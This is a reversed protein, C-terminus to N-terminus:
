RKHRRPVFPLKVVEAGIRRQHVEVEWRTGIKGWELLIRALGIGVGLTPSLSGSTVRGIKQHDKWIFYGDRPIEKGLMRFGVLKHLIGRKQQDGLAQKGLFDGKEFAVTWHLGVELPSLTEDLDHGYLINGAELRLTNRAGLGVPVLGQSRGESLLKDWLPIVGENSAFIEFGDEGTYGSRSIWVKENLFSEEQFAYYSLPKLRFKLIKELLSEALPGQIALCNVTDSHNIIEVSTKATYKKLHNMDREINSANVVLYYHKKDTQYILFEDVIGGKENLAPTYLMRGDKLKSLDNTVLRQLFDFAQDGTVSIEGLHSVDFLGAKTRVAKHEELISTYQIPLLFGGFNVMRGGLSLHREYLATKKLSHSDSVLCSYIM